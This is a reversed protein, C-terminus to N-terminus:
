APEILFDAEVSLRVLRFGPTGAWPLFGEEVSAALFCFVALETCFLKLEDALSTVARRLPLPLVGRALALLPWTLLEWDPPEAPPPPAPFPEAPLLVFLPDPVETM